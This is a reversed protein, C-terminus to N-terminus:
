SIDDTSKNFGYGNYNIVYVSLSVYVCVYINYTNYVCMCM